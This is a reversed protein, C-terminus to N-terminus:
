LIKLNQLIKGLNIIIKGNKGKKAKIKEKESFDCAHGKKQFAVYRPDYARPDRMGQIIFDQMDQIM